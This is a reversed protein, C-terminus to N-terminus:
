LKQVTDGIPTTEHKVSTPPLPDHSLPMFTNGFHSLLNELSELGVILVEIWMLM